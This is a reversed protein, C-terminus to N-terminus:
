EESKHGVGFEDFVRIFMGEEAALIRRRKAEDAISSMGLKARLLDAQESNEVPYLRYQGDETRVSMTGYRQQVKLVRHGDENRYDISTKFMSTYDLASAYDWASLEMTSIAKIIHPHLKALKTSDMHRMLFAIDHVDYKGMRKDGLTQYGALGEKECLEYLAAFNLSDVARMHKQQEAWPLKNYKGSRVKQDQKIMQQILKQKDKDLGEKYAKNAKKYTSKKLGHQQAFAFFPANQKVQKYSLGEKFGEEIYMVVKKGDELAYANRAAGYLDQAFYKEMISFALLYYRDSEQFASDIHALEAKNIYSYYNRVWEEVEPSHDQAQAQAHVNQTHAHHLCLLLLLLYLRM